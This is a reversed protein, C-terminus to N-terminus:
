IDNVLEVHIGLKQAIQSCKQRVNDTTDEIDGYWLKGYQKSFIFVNKLTNKTESMNGVTGFMETAMDVAPQIDEENWFM